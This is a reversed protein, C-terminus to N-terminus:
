LFSSDEDSSTAGSQLVDRNQSKFVLISPTPLSEGSAVYLRTREVSVAYAPASLLIYLLYM